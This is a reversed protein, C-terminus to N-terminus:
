FLFLLLYVWVGTLSTLAIGAAALRGSRIHRPSASGPLVKKRYDRLGTWITKAWWISTLLSIAIHFILFSLNFWEPISSERAFKAFGGDVRVGYEFYSVVVVSFLFLSLQLLIHIRIYGKKASYIALVVLLPLFAVILTVFDMFLPARTGLFGETFMYEM